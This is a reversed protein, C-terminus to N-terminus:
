TNYLTTDALREGTIMGFLESNLPVKQQFLNYLAQTIATSGSRGKSLLIFATKGRCSRGGIRWCTANTGDNHSVSTLAPIHGTTATQPVNAATLSTGHIFGGTYAVCGGVALGLLVGVVLALDELTRPPPRYM